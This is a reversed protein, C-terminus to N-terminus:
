GDSSIPSSPKGNIVIPAPSLVEKYSLGGFSHKSYGDQEVSKTMHQPEKRIEQDPPKNNRMEHEEPGKTEVVPQVVPKVVPRWVKKAAVVKQQPAQGKRCHETHHGLQNCKACTIPKWEYEVKIQMLDGNEDKFAVTEPLSEDVTVEVM